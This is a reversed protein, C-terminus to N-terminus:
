ESKSKYFYPGCFSEHTRVYTWTFDKDVIYVDSLYIDNEGSFDDAKIRKADHLMLADDNHQIFVYCEKKREKNFAYMAEGKELCSLKNYSFAHWLLSDLNIKIKQSKSLKKVFKEEWQKRFNIGKNPLETLMVEKNILSERLEM